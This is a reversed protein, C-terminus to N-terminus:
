KLTNMIIQATKELGNWSCMRKGVETHYRRMREDTLISIIHEHSPNSFVAWTIM